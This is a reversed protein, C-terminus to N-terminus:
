RGGAETRCNSAQCLEARMIRFRGDAAFGLKVHVGRIDTVVVQIPGPGFLAGISTRPDIDEMLNIRVIQGPRRTLILM